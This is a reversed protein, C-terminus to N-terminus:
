FDIKDIDDLSISKSQENNVSKNNDKNEFSLVVDGIEQLLKSYLEELVTENVETFKIIKNLDYFKQNQVIEDLNIKNDAGLTIRDIKGDANRTLKFKIPVFTDIEEWFAFGLRGLQGSDTYIGLEGDVIVNYYMKLRARYGKLKDYHKNILECVKCDLNFSKPCLITKKYWHAQLQRWVGDVVPPLLTIIIKEGVNTPVKVWNIKTQKADEKFLIQRFPNNKVDYM